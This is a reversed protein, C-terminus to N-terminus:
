EVRAFVGVSIHRPSCQQVTICRFLITFHPGTYTVLPPSKASFTSRFSEGGLWFPYPKKGVGVKAKVPQVEERGPQARPMSAADIASM